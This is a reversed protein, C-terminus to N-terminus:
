LHTDREPDPLVACHLWYHFISQLIKLHEPHSVPKVHYATAGHEYCFSVDRPNSSTSLVIIPIVFLRKNQHIGNLLDRGDGGPTNLDLLVIAPPELLSEPTGLLRLCEDGSVARRIEHTVSALRAADLVTDFDEDSDEVVIIHGLPQRMM